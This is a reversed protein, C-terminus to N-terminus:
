QIKEELDTTKQVDPAHHQEQPQRPYYAFRSDTQGGDNDQKSGDNGRYISIWPISNASRYTM